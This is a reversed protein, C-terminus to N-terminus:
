SDFDSLSLFFPRVQKNNQQFSALIQEGRLEKEIYEVVVEDEEEMVEEEKEELAKQLPFKHTQTVTLSIPLSASRAGSQIKVRTYGILLQTAQQCLGQCHSCSM